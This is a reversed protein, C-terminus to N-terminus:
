GLSKKAGRYILETRAFKKKKKEVSVCGDWSREPMRREAVGCCLRSDAPVNGLDFALASREAVIHM